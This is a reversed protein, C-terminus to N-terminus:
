PLHLLHIYYLLLCLMVSITVGAAICPGEALKNAVEATLLDFILNRCRAIGLRGAQLNVKPKRVLYM